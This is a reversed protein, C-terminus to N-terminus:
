KAGGGGLKDVLFWGWLISRVGCLRGQAYGFPPAEVRRCEFNILEVNMIRKSGRTSSDTMKKNKICTEKPPSGM